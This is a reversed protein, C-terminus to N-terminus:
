EPTATEVALWPLLLPAIAQLVALEGTPMIRPRDDFHCLTGLVRGGPLRVPVGAYSQVSARAPHTWLRSDAPADDVRFAHGSEYVVSCLADVLLRVAGSVNLSPNERDYLSVNYLQPPAIRYLGTFRFRTRQNLLALAETLGDSGLRREFIARLTQPVGPNSSDDLQGSHSPAMIRDHM